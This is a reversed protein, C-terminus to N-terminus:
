PQGFPNDTTLGSPQGPPFRQNIRGQFRAWGDGAEGLNTYTQALTTGGAQIIAPWSHGLEFRLWNLFLVACGISVYNTDTPDTATVFDPRGGDLWVPASVFGAPETGPYMANSLVRSLGEGNSAGCDWGNAATAMFVEDEEAVVLANIFEPDSAPASRAGISLQTGLCTPHSAGTDGPTVRIQFPLAAPTIGGFYGQLTTFDQECRDAIRQAAAAGGAGLTANYTIAFHATALHQVHRAAADEAHDVVHQGKPVTLGAM